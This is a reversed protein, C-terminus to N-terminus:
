RVVSLGAPAVYPDVHGAHDAARIPDQPLSPVGPAAPLGPPKKLKNGEKRYYSHLCAPPLRRKTLLEHCPCTNPTGKGLCGSTALKHAVNKGTDQPHRADKCGQMRAHVAAFCAM